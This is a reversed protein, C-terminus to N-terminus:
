QPLSRPRTLLRSAVKALTREVHEPEFKVQAHTFRLPTLGESAHAQDRLRDRAQEAPTRHYRLGDTEVVLGLDPWYFDVEFGNVREKTEPLPLGAKRAVPKFLRELDSDNLTFTRRDLTTRLFAAGPRGRYRELGQRLSEPDILDRKDAENICSELRGRPLRAALDVFTLVLSTVPIGRRRTLDGSTLGTRRYTRIGDRSRVVGGPVSIEIQGGRELEGIGWLAAASGHSLVARPGCTLVAAMWRGERTVEPRGVAYLGRWLPHLRRNAIRRDIMRASFGLALLQARAVVGHQRAALAALGQELPHLISWGM